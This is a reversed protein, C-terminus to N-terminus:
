TYKCANMAEVLSRHLALTIQQYRPQLFVDPEACWMELDDFTFNYKKISEKFECPWERKSSLINFYAIYAEDGIIRANNKVSQPVSRYIYTAANESM